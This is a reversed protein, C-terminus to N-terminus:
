TMKEQTALKGIKLLERSSVELAGHAIAVVHQKDNIDYHYAAISKHFFHKKVGIKAAFSHLEDLTDAVMHAYSVRPKKVGARTYVPQDVYVAM